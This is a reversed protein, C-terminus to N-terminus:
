FAQFITYRLIYATFDKYSWDWIAPNNLLIQVDVGIFIKEIAYAIKWLLNNLMKGFVLYDRLSPGFVKSMRGFHLFKVSCSPSEKHLMSGLWKVLGQDYRISRLIRFISVLWSNLM